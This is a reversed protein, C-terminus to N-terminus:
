LWERRLLLLANFSALLAALALPLMRNPKALLVPLPENPPPTLQSAQLSTELQKRQAAFGRLRKDVAQVRNMRRAEEWERQFRLQNGNEAPAVVPTFESAELPQELEETIQQHLLAKQERVAIVDLTHKKAEEVSDSLALKESTEVALQRIIRAKDASLQEEEAKGKRLDEEAVQLDERLDSLNLLEAMKKECEDKVKTLDTANDKKQELAADLENRLSNVAVDSTKYNAASTKLQKAKKRLTELAQKQLSLSETLETIETNLKQSEARFLLVPSASLTALPNIRQALSAEITQLQLEAEAWEKNDKLMRSCHNRVHYFFNFLDAPGHGGEEFSLIETKSLKNLFDEDSEGTEASKEELLALVREQTAATKEKTYKRNKKKHSPVRTVAHALVWNQDLLQPLESFNQQLNLKHCIRTLAEEAKQNATQVKAVLATLAALLTDESTEGKLTEKVSNVVLLLKESEIHLEVTGLLPVEGQLADNLDTCSFESAPTERGELIDGEIANANDVNENTSKIEESVCKADKNEDEIQESTGQVKENENEIREDAGEVTRLVDEITEDLYEVQESSSKIKENGDEIKEGASEIPEDIGEIREDANKVKKDEDEVQKDEIKM